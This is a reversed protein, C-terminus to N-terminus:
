KWRKHKMNKQTKGNIIEFDEGVFGEPPSSENVTIEEANYKTIDGIVETRGSVRDILSATNGLLYTDGEELEYRLLTEGQRKLFRAM